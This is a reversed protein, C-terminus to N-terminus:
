STAVWKSGYLTSFCRSSTKLPAACWRQLGSRGTSPVSVVASASPCATSIRNCGVEVRLPYQFRRLGVWHASLAPQLGSRGTSPVSVLSKKWCGWCSHRQLGSRGTSPVSVQAPSDPQEVGELNCGVEVRLPYQFRSFRMAASVDSATAVWKSGYLTSFCQVCEGQRLVTRTAVWKSGYLTSFGTLLIHAARQKARQLGSRGTSPVSVYIAPNRGRPPASNCGVEVRLPYQFRARYAINASVTSTAVWKSGYLTSFRQELDAIFFGTGQQLGSRGTSPVSVADRRDPQTALWRQLGSRGTSPVSVKRGTHHGSRCIVNCGVEVRLPYQFKAESPQTSLRTRTAVWKSGYLTSFRRCRSQNPSAIDRQLGSRGTSPVSVNLSTKRRSTNRPQLGSRGTSPVSVLSTPPLKTADHRQM